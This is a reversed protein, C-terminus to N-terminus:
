RDEDEARPLRRLIVAAPALLIVLSGWYMAPIAVFAALARSWPRFLVLLGLAAIARLAFPIEIQPGLPQGYAAALHGVWTPWLGLWPITIAFMVGTAVAVVRWDRPHVALIPSLKAFSMVTAPAARRNIAAVIAAAVLMNFNGSVLEFATLPFLCALGFALWSGALYRLAAVELAVIGIYMLEIPLWSVAAFMVVFPPAYWITENRLPQIAYVEGGARLTDGARDWIHTDGGPLWFLGRSIGWWLIGFLVAYGLMSLGVALPRSWRQLVVPSTGVTTAGGNQFPSIRM